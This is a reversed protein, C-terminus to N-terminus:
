ARNNYKKVLKNSVVEKEAQNLKLIGLTDFLRVAAKESGKLVKIQTPM